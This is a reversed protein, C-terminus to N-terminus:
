DCLSILNYRGGPTFGVTEKDMETEEVPCGLLLNKLKNVWVKLPIIIIIIFTVMTINYILTQGSSKKTWEVESEALWFCKKASVNLFEFELFLFHM